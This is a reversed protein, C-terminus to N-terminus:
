NRGFETYDDGIDTARVAHHGIYEGHGFQRHLADGHFPCSTGHVIAEVFRGHSQCLAGSRSCGIDGLVSESHAAHTRQSEGNRQCVFRDSQGSM